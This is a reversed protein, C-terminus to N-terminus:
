KDLAKLQQYLNEIEPCSAGKEKAAALPNAYLYEIELPKHQEYDYFMSPKYGIQSATLSIMEEFTTPSIERNYAKAITIIESAIAKLLPVSNKALQDTTTNQVVSLGNFPINWLLKQWRIQLYDQHIECPISSQIFCDTLDNILNEQDAMKNYAALKIVGHHTAKIVGPAIKIAGITTIACFIAHNNTISAIYEENGLGNQMILIVSNKKLIHPLYSPLFNNQTTKLAIIIVNCRPMDQIHEYAIIVPLSFRGEITIINLGNQKLEQYATHFLFHVDFGARALLAGYYGGIAGSGIIAFNRKTKDQM